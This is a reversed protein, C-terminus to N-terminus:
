QPLSGRGNAILARATIVHNVNQSTPDFIQDGKETQNPGSSSDRLKDGLCVTM